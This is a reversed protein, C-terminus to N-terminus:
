LFLNIKYDIEWQPVIRAGGCPFMQLSVVVHIDEKNQTSNAYCWYRFCGQCLKKSTSIISISRCPKEKRLGYFYVERNGMVSSLKM